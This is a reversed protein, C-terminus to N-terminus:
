PVYMVFNRRRNKCQLNMTCDIFTTLSRHQSGSRTNTEHFWEGRLFVVEMVSWDIGYFPNATDADLHPVTQISVGHFTSDKGSLDFGLNDNQNKTYQTVGKKVAWNTYYGYGGAAKGEPIVVPNIFGTYESAKRLSDIFDDQTIEDYGASWNSWNPYTTSSLGACGAAYGTPNGGDFGGGVTDNARQLWYKIGFMPADETAESGTPEAWFQDEFLETMGILCDARRAKMIDALDRKDIGKFQPEREEASYDSTVHRWPVQGTKLLDSQSPTDVAHLATSHARGNKAVMASFQLQQGIKEKKKQKLIHPMAVYRHLDTTLLTFTLPKYAKQVATVVDAIDEIQLAPNAM